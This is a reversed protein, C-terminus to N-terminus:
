LSQDLIDIQSDKKISGEKSYTTNKQAAQQLSSLFTQTYQIAQETLIANTEQLQQVAQVLASIEEKNEPLVEIAEISEVVAQKQSVIETIKKSNNHILADKEELLLTKLHELHNIIKNKSM